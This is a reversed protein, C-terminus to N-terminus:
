AAGARWSGTVCAAFAGWCAGLVLTMFAIATYMTGFSLIPLVRPLAYFFGATLFLGLLGTLASTRRRILANTSWQRDRVIVYSFLYAIVTPAALLVSVFADHRVAFDMLAAHVM